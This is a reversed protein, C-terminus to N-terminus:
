LNDLHPNFKGFYGQIYVIGKGKLLVICTHIQTPVGKGPMM